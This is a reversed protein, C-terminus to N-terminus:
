AKKAKPKVAKMPAGCCILDCSACTCPNEVVMVAGCVGCEYKAGKKAM